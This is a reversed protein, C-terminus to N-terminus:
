DTEFVLTTIENQRTTQLYTTSVITNTKKLLVGRIRDKNDESYKVNICICLSDGKSELRWSYVSDPNFIKYDLTLKLKFNGKPILSSFTSCSKANQWLRIIETDSLIDKDPNGTQSNQIEPLNTKEGAIALDGKLAVGTIANGKHCEYTTNSTDPVAKYYSIINIVANAGHKKAVTQLYILASRLVWDCSFDATKQFGNTKKNAVIGKQIIQGDVDTGALYFKVTGDLTGDAICREVAAYFDFNYTDDRAHVSSIIVGIFFMIKYMKGEKM